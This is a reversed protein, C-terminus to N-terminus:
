GRRWPDPLGLRRLHRTEAMAMRRAEGPAHHDHGALHLMGHVVLHALHGLPRRGAAEAERYVVGLALVIEGSGPFSLVNTARSRGRHRANLRRVMRDSGLVVIPGGAGAMAAARAAIGVAGPVRRRWTPDTVIVTPRKTKRGARAPCSSQPDM